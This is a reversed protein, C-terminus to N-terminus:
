VSLHCIGPCYARMRWHACRAYQESATCSMQKALISMHLCKLIKRRGSVSSKCKSCRNVFICSLLFLSWISFLHHLNRFSFPQFAQLQTGKHLDSFLYYLVVFLVYVSKSSEIVLEWLKLASCLCFLLAMYIFALNLVWSIYKLHLVYIFPFDSSPSIQLVLLNALSFLLIFWKYLIILVAVLVLGIM